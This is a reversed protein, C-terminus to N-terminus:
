GSNMPGALFGARAFIATEDFRVDYRARLLEVGAEFAERPVPGSPAVIRVVGGPRLRPPRIVM